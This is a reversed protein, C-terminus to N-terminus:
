LIYCTLCTLHYYWVYTVLLIINNHFLPKITQQNWNNDNNGCVTFGYTLIHTHINLTDKFLVVDWVRRFMTSFTRKRKVCTFWGWMKLAKCRERIHKTLSGKQSFLTGCHECRYPKEGTHTLKHYKLNGGQTFSERVCWLLITEGRHTHTHTQRTTTETCLYLWLSQVLLSTWRHSHTYTKYTTTETCLYLWLTPLFVTQKRHSYHSTQELHKEKRFM